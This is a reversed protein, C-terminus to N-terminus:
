AGDHPPEVGEPYGNGAQLSKKVESAYVDVYPQESLEALHKMFFDTFARATDHSEPDMGRELAWDLPRFPDGIKIGVKYPRPIWSGIPNARRTNMMAIPFVQAGTKFAVRAMGTRGKYVRGDPSRTGEPYIGFLEGEGIVRTGTSELAEVANDSERDIPVQGVSTFFWRQFRGVLGPTTFYESKALFTIQRPCMVPLFFSDMVAQHNSALIAGGEAPIKEMGEVWPRNWARLLPGVVTKFRSYWKSQM